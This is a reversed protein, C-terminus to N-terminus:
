PASGLTPERGPARAAPPHQPSEHEHGHQDLRLTRGLHETEDQSFFVRAAGSTESPLEEVSPPRVSLSDVNARMWLELSALVFLQRAGIQAEHGRVGARLRDPQFIDRSLARDSLILSELYARAGEVLFRELPVPFGRKPQRLVNEPILGGIAERVVHKSGRLSARDRAASRSSRTVIDIDLLPMRGELSAAMLVKDSRLLMNDPLYTFLDGLLMRRGADLQSYPALVRALPAALSAASVGEALEPTLLAELQDVEISRFWSAWRVLPDRILASRAARGLQRHSRQLSMARLVANVVLAGPRGGMRLVADARYKPYGGFVEDGGDGTLAVKVHRGAFEALLLLPIESAEAIPEDRFWALRPLAELFDQGNVVVEYHDSGFHEASSRAVPREDYVADDFGITFTAPAVGMCERALALVATSDVGGSLLVGLPVDSMLRREVARSLLERLERPDLPEPTSPVELQWYASTELHVGDYSARHAPPLREIGAFMTRPSVVYRQFLYEAVSERALEPQLGAVLFLSRADSGFAVGNATRALYLPKKGLRDRALFLRQRRAEWVAFAFMGDLQVPLDEGWEEYGHVLVETDSRSRFRHGLRTLRERLEDHNWIEGNYVVVVTGDENAIPQGGGPLDIISLRTNGLVVSDSEFVGHGDPGRHALSAVADVLGRHVPVAAGKAAAFGVIGCM